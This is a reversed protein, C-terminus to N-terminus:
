SQATKLLSDELDFVSLRLKRLVIEAQKIASQIDIKEQLLEANKLARRLRLLYAKALDTQRAIDDVHKIRGVRNDYSPVQYPM